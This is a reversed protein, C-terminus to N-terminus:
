GKIRGLEALGAELPKKSDIIGRKIAVVTYVAPRRASAVGRDSLPDDLEQEKVTKAGPQQPPAFHLLLYRLTQAKSVRRSKIRPIKDITLACVCVRARFLRLTESSRSEASSGIIATCKAAGDSHPKFPYM